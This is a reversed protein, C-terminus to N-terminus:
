IQMRGLSPVYSELNPFDEDPFDSESGVLSPGSVMAKM